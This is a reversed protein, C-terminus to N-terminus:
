TGAMGKGGRSGKGRRKKRSGKGITRRGRIRSRKDRKKIKM